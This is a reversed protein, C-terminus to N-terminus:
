FRGIAYTVAASIVANVTFSAIMEGNEKLIEWLKRKIKKGKQEADIEVKLLDLGKATISAMTGKNLVADYKNGCQRYRVCDEQKNQFFVFGNDKLWQLTQYLGELDNESLGEDNFVTPAPMTNSIKNLIYAANAKFKETLM